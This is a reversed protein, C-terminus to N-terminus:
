VNQVCTKRPLLIVGQVGEGFAGTRRDVRADRGYASSGEGGEVAEITLGCLADM